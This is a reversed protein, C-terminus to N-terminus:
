ILVVPFEATTEHYEQVNAQFCCPLCANDSNLSLWMMTPQCIYTLPIELCPLIITATLTALLQGVCHVLSHSVHQRVGGLQWLALHAEAM